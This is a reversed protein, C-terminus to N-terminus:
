AGARARRLMEGAHAAAEKSPHAGALMRAIEAAREKDGLVEVKTTTRGKTTEKQVRIHHDAFAAIQPLHTIALVQRDAAIAKLKKGITEATGGGVGTDVEDFIYLLARDTKALARKVALMVRSLEGGSAIRSLPKPEEGPNPAFLFRVRDMGKPGMPEKDEVLVDVKASELNLDRLTEDIKKALSRAARRRRECLSEAAGTARRQAADVAARKGALAEEFSGMEALEKALADRKEIATEVTGGHKRLLRQIVFLREEIEELRGPEFRIRSAYRQLDSAADEVLARAEALRDAIPSLAPDLQALGQLERVVGGIQSAAAAEGSYLADEGRTCAAMFKEAGKIREREAKLADHEGPALKAEDLEQLQFRLFDEREARTRADADFAELAKKAEQLADWAERMEGLADATGSWLDLIHLQSEPDMLSQQDHQSTIDVLTGVTAQLEAVTGLAGGLHVRGRGARSIVRRVVLGDALDRGDEELQRRVGWGAPVEFIAEVQAEDRGTRILDSSARHGRLMSIADILISKGAGTEGTIVTLGPGFPLELEDILAFGSIRLLTLV